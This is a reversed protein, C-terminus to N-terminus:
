LWLLQVNVTFDELGERQFNGFQVEVPLLIWTIVSFLRSWFSCCMSLKWLLISEGLKEDCLFTTSNNELFEELWEGGGLMINSVKLTQLAHFIEQPYEYNINGVQSFSKHM